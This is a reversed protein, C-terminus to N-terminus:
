RVFSGANSFTAQEAGPIGIGSLKSTGPVKELVTAMRGAATRTASASSDAGFGFSQGVTGVAAFVFAYAGIKVLGSLM